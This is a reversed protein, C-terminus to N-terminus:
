TYIMLSKLLKYGKHIHSHTQTHIHVVYARSLDSFLCDPTGRAGIGICKYFFYNEDVRM